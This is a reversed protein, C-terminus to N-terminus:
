LKCAPVTHLGLQCSGLQHKAPKNFFKASYLSSKILSIVLLTGLSSIPYPGLPWSVTCFDPHLQLHRASTVTGHRWM